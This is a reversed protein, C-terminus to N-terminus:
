FDYSFNSLNTVWIEMIKNESFRYIHIGTTILTEKKEESRSTASLSWRVVVKNNEGSFLDHIQLEPAEFHQHFRQVAKQLSEFDGVNGKGGWSQKHYVLNPHCFKVLDKDRGLSWVENFFSRVLERQETKELPMDATTTTM